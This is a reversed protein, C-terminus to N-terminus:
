RDIRARLQAVAKEFADAFRDIEESTVNADFSVRIHGHTLAGMAVLVHSPEGSTTACSSGSHVAFGAKDLAQTLAQGDVYLASAAVVHPLADDDPGHVAVDDIAGLRTRLWRRLADARHVETAAMGRPDSPSLQLLMEALAGIRSLDQMGSRFRLEREDGTLLPALRARPSWLLAGAGPGAGVKASSLTLFDVGLADLHVPLRGVTQCADVHLFADAERCLEAVQAIPQLAGVEHNAHQLNVLLAGGDLAARIAEVDVRGQADVGVVVHECASERAVADCAALVASHEVASSIIRPRRRRNAAVVGRVALHIAETGGSTFVTRDVSGGLSAAVARRASSLLDSAARGEQHARTPDAWASASARDQAKHALPHLPAVSASDLYVREAM